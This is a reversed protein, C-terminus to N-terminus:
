GGHTLPATQTPRFAPVPDSDTGAKQKGPTVPFDPRTGGTGANNVIKINFFSSVAGPIMATRRVVAQPLEPVVAADVVVGAVVVAAVPVDLEGAAVCV